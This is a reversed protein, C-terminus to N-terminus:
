QITHVHIAHLTELGVALDSVVVLADGSKVYGNRKLNAVMKMLIVNPDPDRAIVQAKVGFNLSLSRAVHEDHTFTYIPAVQPRLGSIFRAKTGTHSYVCIGVARTENALYVTAANIKERATKPVLPNIYEGVTKGQEIRKAIRDMIEVCELPYKGTTTEGSLMIADAHEFVANAIDTIEARTPAPNTIMSELLHTAVIVPKVAALCLNVARRQIIPLEEYPVEIGLDGRAIMLGDCADIIEELNRVAMQDEIKAVIRIESKREKIIGRLLDIDARRRVFSMAIFDMNCEFALEIDKYDKETLAPLKVDVGPLNIHRRSGMVGPTLVKCVLENERKELAEMRLLGNDVIVISGVEIDEVLHPYNVDVTIQVTGKQGKVTFSVWDGIQLDYPKPVDGTRIAPGQTDLLLAVEHNLKASITRISKAVTRVWDHPAHSMNFRFINVGLKMLAELMIPTSTAPGLTAIIKTRRM